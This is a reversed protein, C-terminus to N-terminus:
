SKLVDQDIVQLPLYLTCGVCAGLYIRKDQALCLINSLQQCCPKDSVIKRHQCDPLIPAFIYPDGTAMYGEPVPPPQGRKIAHLSGDHFKILRSM